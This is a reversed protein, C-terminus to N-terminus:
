ESIGVQSLIFAFSFAREKFADYRGSSGGHGAAMNAKLLVPNGSTTFSRLKAAFKAGEWYPVQSDYFSVELLVTPYAQARINDLPSYTRIYDYAAKEGPNGWERYESTTLPLSADLMTTLVDVFPVQAVAARFLDPRANIAAGVLLGGASGGQIVVRGPAAYGREILGTACDVFDGFTTQKNFLNGALRWAEGYEGGGRIHAIAFIMGRDLLALRPASFLPEICVGYSGYGYLLVPATGDRAVDRRHVLSVPIRTGDSAAVFIREATYGAREYGPVELRKVLTRTGSAIDLDYVSLPTVLSEFTYRLRPTEFEYNPGIGVVYDPEDFALAELATANARLLEISALGDRRGTIAVFDRFAEVGTITVGPRQAILENWHERGPRAVPTTFVRFDPAGENTRVYFDGARHELYYRVGDQRAAFLQPSSQPAAASLSRVETTDKAQSRIFIFTGDRSRDVAVDYLEDAEFYVREANAARCERCWVTNSRKTVADETVYVLTRNDLAWAVDDVREIPEGVTTGSALEKVHLTYRRYGTDDISYALLQGDDSVEFAGLGLFAKGAALENLDLLVEERQALGDRRRCFIAYQQGELMRTYYFYGHRRYPASMDTQKTHALMEAYLAARLPELGATIERTYANEAELHAVVHPDSADRLWFFEDIRTDGHLALERPLRKAAPPAISPHATGGDVDASNTM